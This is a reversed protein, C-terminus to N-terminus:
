LASGRRCCQSHLADWVEEECEGGDRQMSWWTLSLIEQQPGFSYQSWQSRSLASQGGVGLMLNITGRKLQRVVLCRSYPLEKNGLSIQRERVAASLAWGLYWAKLHILHPSPISDWCFDTHIFHVFKGKRSTRSPQKFQQLEQTTVRTVSKM